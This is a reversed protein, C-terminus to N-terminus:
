LGKVRRRGFYAGTQRGAQWARAMASTIAIKPVTPKTSSPIAKIRPSSCM